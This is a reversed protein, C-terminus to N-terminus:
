SPRQRKWLESRYWSTQKCRGCTVGDLDDAFRAHTGGARVMGCASTLDHHVDGSRVPYRRWHVAPNEYTHVVKRVVAPDVSARIWKAEPTGLSSRELLEEFSPAGSLRLLEQFAKGIAEPLSEAGVNIPAVHSGLEVAYGGGQFPVLKLCTVGYRRIIEDLQRLPSDPHM